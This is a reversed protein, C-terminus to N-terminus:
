FFLTKIVLYLLIVGILITIFSELLINKSDTEMKEEGNKLDNDKGM